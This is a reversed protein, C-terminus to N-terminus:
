RREEESGASVPLRAHISFGGGPDPSAHFAGGMLEIRERLGILGLGGDTNPRRTSLPERHRGDNTVDVRVDAATGDVVVCRAGPAHRLVNALGEQVIRYVALEASAPLPEATNVTLTTATGARNTREILANLDRLGPQHLREGAEADDRLAGLASQMETLASGSLQEIETLKARLSDVDVAESRRGVASVIAITGLSHSVIDHLERALRLREAVVAREREARAAHEGEERARRTVSGLTWAGAVVVVSSIAVGGVLVHLEFVLSTVGPPHGAALLLVTIMAAWRVPLREAVNCFVYGRFALEETFGAALVV